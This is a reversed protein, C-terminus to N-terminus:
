FTRRNFMSSNQNFISRYVVTGGSVQEKNRRAMEEKLLRLRDDIDEEEEKRKLEKNLAGIKTATILRFLEGYNREFELLCLNLADVAHENEDSYIPQGTSSVSKIKYGEFQERIEKDKPDFIIAGREFALVSNNVMFPKLPKNDKKRTHPDRVIIKQGLQYGVTKEALMTEPNEVGWKKIMELQVDGYGRDMVIHDIDLLENLEVIKQIANVYTFESRPIELRFLVKFKPELLGRDNTFGRDLYLGVMTTGAQVKDYDIGLLLVGNKNRNFEMIEAKSNLDLYKHGIDVGQQVALEIYKRQYVGMEEDGFNAMVEQEYRLESLEDKIDQLYTQETVPNIKLLEENVISPAYIETWGNGTEGHDRSDTIVYESFTYNDIDEQKPAFRRTAGTCWKYFEEHKGSPTSACIMRIRSPAENRINIFNTIQSSGVYDCEDVVILDARQGRSNNSGSNGSSAGATLGLIVTGNSLEKKHHIQKTMMGSVYPSHKILQDLRKFILDIQTEYPAFILIDYQNNPGKNIQTCAYWLILICMCDTKGLRRGLRLVLLPSSGGEKLMPIQYGRAEWNLYVKAWLVPSKTVVFELAKQLSVGNIANMVKHVKIEINKDLRKLDDILLKAEDESLRNISQSVKFKKRTM